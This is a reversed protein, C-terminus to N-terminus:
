RSLYEEETDAKYITVYNDVYEPVKAPEDTPAYDRPEV